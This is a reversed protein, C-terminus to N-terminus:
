LIDCRISQSIVLLAAESERSMTKLWFLGQPNLKGVVAGQTCEGIIYDNIM